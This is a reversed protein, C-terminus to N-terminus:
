GLSSSEPEAAAGGRRVHLHRRFHVVAFGIVIVGLLAYSVSGLASEVKKYSNGALYGVVAVTVAWDVGGVNSILFRPYSIRAMGAMGPVLAGLAATWRGLIVGKAGM